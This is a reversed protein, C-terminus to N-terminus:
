VHDGGSKIVPPFAAQFDVDLACEIKGGLVYSPPNRTEADAEMRSMIRFDVVDGLSEWVDSGVGKFLLKATRAPIVYEGYSLVAPISDSATGKVLGGIAPADVFEKAVIPAVAASALFGLLKRRSITM